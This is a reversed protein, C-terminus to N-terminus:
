NLFADILELARDVDRGKFMHGAGPLIHLECGAYASAAQYAYKVPVLRDEGGHILLVPGKYKAAEGILDFDWMEEVYGRGMWLWGNFYERDPVNDLSGYVDHMADPIGFGPYLLVLRRVREPHRAACLASVAAGQSAGMLIVSDAQVFDWGRVAELVSELDRVESLVTMDVTDGGSCSHESGGRFDFAYFAYGRAALHEAYPRGTAHTCGIEHSYIILQPREVDAPLYLKGYLREGAHECWLERVTYNCGSM